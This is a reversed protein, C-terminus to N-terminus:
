HLDPNNKFDPLLQQTYAISYVFLNMDLLKIGIRNSLAYLSSDRWCLKGISKLLVSAVTDPTDSILDVIILSNLPFLFDILFDLIRFFNLVNLKPLSDYFRTRMPGSNLCLVDIGYALKIFHQSNKFCFSNSFMRLAEIGLCTAFQALGAKTAGYM